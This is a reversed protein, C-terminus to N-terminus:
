VGTQSDTWQLLCHRFQEASRCLGVARGSANAVGAIIIRDCTKYAFPKGERYDSDYETFIHLTKDASVASDDVTLGDIYIESPMMCPYGFDHDGENRSYIIHMDKDFCPKWTCNRITLTGDFFAGYDERLRLFNSAMVTCNEILFDGFGTLNVGAFGFVSNRLVGNTIGCHADFRSLVCDEILLEKSFNSGMIGWYREDTIDRSQRVRLLKTGITSNFTLDYTGMGVMQGPIKSEMWYTWHPTLLTDCILLDYCHEGRIFGSYPAGQEGEGTVFHQLNRITVHSRTVLIGRAHAKYECIWHNAITTFIGGDLVIPADDVRKAWISSISTYDWNIRNLVNGEPDVLFAESPDSGSDKNPGKRIYVKYDSCTVQVYVTGEHPFSLTQQGKAIATIAPTFPTFESVVQFCPASIDELVRDDIIFRANGWFTNTMIKATLGRGGIYYEADPDAHVDLHHDNAYAHCAVIAPFDDQVGDGAAGFQRYTVYTREM